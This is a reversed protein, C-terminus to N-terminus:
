LETSTLRLNFGVPLIYDKVFKETAQLIDAAITKVTGNSIPTTTIFEVGNPNSIGVLKLFSLNVRLDRPTKLFSGGVADFRYLDGNPNDNVSYVEQPIPCSAPKAIWGGYETLPMSDQSISKIFEEIRHDAKVHFELGKLKGAIAIELWCIDNKNVRQEILM